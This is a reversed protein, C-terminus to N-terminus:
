RRATRSAAFAGAVIGAATSLLVGVGQTLLVDRREAFAMLVVVALPVAGLALMVGTDTRLAHRNGRSLLLQCVFFYGALTAFAAPLGWAEGVFMMLLFSVVGLLLAIAPKKM